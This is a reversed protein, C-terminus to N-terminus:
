LACHVNCHVARCLQRACSEASDHMPAPKFDDSVRPWAFECSLVNVFAHAVAYCHVLSSCWTRSNEGPHLGQLVQAYGKFCRPM